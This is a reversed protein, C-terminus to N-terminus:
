ENATGKADSTTTAPPALAAIRDAADQKYEDWHRVRERPTVFVGCALLAEEAREARAEAYMGAIAPHFAAPLTRVQLQHDTETHQKM